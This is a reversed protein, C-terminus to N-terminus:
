ENAIHKTIQRNFALIYISGYRMSGKYPFECVHSELWARLAGCCSGWGQLQSHKSSQGLIDALFFGSRREM